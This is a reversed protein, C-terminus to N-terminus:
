GQEPSSRSLVRISFMLVHLLGDWSLELQENQFIKFFFISSTGLTQFHVRQDSLRELSKPDLMFSGCGWLLWM